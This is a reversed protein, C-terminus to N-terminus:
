KNIKKEKDKKCEKVRRLEGKSEKVSNESNEPRILELTFIFVLEHLIGSNVWVALNRNTIVLYSFVFCFLFLSFYLFVHREVQPVNYYVM